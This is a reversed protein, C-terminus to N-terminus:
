KEVVEAEASGEADVTLTITKDGKTQISTIIGKSAGDKEFMFSFEINPAGNDVVTEITITIEQDNELTADSWVQKQSGIKEKLTLDKVTAGTKNIITYTFKATEEKSEKKACSSFVVLALVLVLVLAIIKKM